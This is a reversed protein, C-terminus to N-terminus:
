RIDSKILSSVEEYKVQFEESLNELKKTLEVNIYPHRDNNKTKNSLSSIYCCM